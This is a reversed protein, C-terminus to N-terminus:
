ATTKRRRTLLFLMGGVLVAAGGGYIAVSMLTGSVGTTPLSGSDGDGAGDGGGGAVAVDVSDSMGSEVGVSTLTAEGAQTLTAEFTWNGDADAFTYGILRRAGGNYQVFINVREFPEYGSGSFTVTGGPTVTGDSVTAPPAPPYEVASAPSAAFLTVAAATLLLM